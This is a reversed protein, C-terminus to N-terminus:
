EASANKLFNELAGADEKNAAFDEAM